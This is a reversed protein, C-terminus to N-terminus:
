VMYKNLCTWSNHKECSVDVTSSLRHLFPYNKTCKQPYFNASILQRISQSKMYKDSWIQHMKRYQYNKSLKLTEMKRYRYSVSLKLFVSKDAKSLKEDIYRVGRCDWVVIMLKIINKDIQYYIKKLGRDEVKSLEWYWALVYLACVPLIYLMASHNLQLEGYYYDHLSFLLTQSQM